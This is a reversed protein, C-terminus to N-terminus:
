RKLLHCYSFKSIKAGMAQHGHTKKPRVTTKAKLIPLFHAEVCCWHNRLTFQTLLAAYSKM